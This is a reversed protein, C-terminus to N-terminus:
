PVRAQVADTEQPQLSILFEFYPEVPMKGPRAFWRLYMCSKARASPATRPSDHLGAWNGKYADGM